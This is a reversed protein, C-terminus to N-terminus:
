KISDRQKPKTMELTLPLLVLSFLLISSLAISLVVGISHMGQHQAVILAGFTMLTSLCSVLTANPTSTAFFAHIDGEKRFRNVIHIGNDVGLGFILPIVIINAMNLSLGLWHMLGLTTISSLILPIFILLIDRKNRIAMMLILSILVIALLIAQQFASVIIKGVQQEAVARGVANPAIAQVQSIFRAVNDVNTMDDKPTITVLFKGNDSVFRNLLEAPLDDMGPNDSTQMSDMMGTLGAFLQQETDDPLTNPLQEAGKWQKEIASQKFETYSLPAPLDALQLTQMLRNQRASWDQPLFDTAITVHSVSSQTILQQKWQQAQQEDEAIAHLQYSSGLGLQQLQNLAVVSASDPNKLVLTSFDFKFQSAGVLMLVFWVGVAVIIGRSYRHLRVGYRKSLSHSEKSRNTPFGFLQFFVPVIVFTAVLGLLMGLASIVGLEGLGTYATPYFSMFGIASSLACLSLPRISHQIALKTSVLNDPNGRRQEQIHLCLHIAFDVALGIFMVMFVISITSYHGILALGAAFTWTLGILVTVYCALIVRLSRIGIALILLLGVLSASGAFAISNEADNIEDFDLATQGTYSVEVGNPKPISAITTNLNDIIARNPNKQQNNAAGALTIVFHKPTNLGSQMTQQWDVLNSQSATLLPELSASYASDHQSILALYHEIRNAPLQSALFAPAVSQEFQAMFQKLDDEPLFGLAYQDFWTLSSPAFVDLIIDQQSFAEALQNTYTKAQQGNQGSVLVTINGNDPFLRNVENLNDLWEGEQQVLSSLDANVKFHQQGYWASFATVIIIFSALWVPRANLLSFLKNVINALNTM